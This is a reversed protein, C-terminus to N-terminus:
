IHVLVKKDMMVKLFANDGDEKGFFFRLIKQFDLRTREDLAKNVFQKTLREIERQKAEDMKNVLDTARDMNKHSTTLRRVADKPEGSM